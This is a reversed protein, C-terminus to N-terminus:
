PIAFFPRNKYVNATLLFTFSFLVTFYLLCFLNFSFLAFDTRENIIPKWKLRGTKMQIIANKGLIVNRQADSGAKTLNAGKIRAARFVIVLLLLMSVVIVNEDKMDIKFNKMLFSKTSSSATIKAGRVSSLIQVLLEFSEDDPFLWRKSKNEYSNLRKMISERYAELQNLCLSDNEGQDVTAACATDM